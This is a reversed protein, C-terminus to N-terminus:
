AHPQRSLPNASSTLKSDALAAVATGMGEGSPTVFTSALYNTLVALNGPASSGNGIEDNMLTTPESAMDFGAAGSDFTSASQTASTQMAVDQSSAELHGPLGYSDAAAHNM